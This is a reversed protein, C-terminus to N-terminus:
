GERQPSPHFLLEGLIGAHSAVMNTSLKPGGIHGGSILLFFRYNVKEIFAREKGELALM